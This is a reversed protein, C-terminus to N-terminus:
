TPSGALSQGVRQRVAARGSEIPNQDTALFRRSGNNDILGCRLSVPNYASFVRASYSVRLTYQGPPITLDAVAVATQRGMLASVTLRDIRTVFGNEPVLAALENPRAGIPLATPRAGQVSVAWAAFEIPGTCLAGIVLVTLLPTVRARGVRSM